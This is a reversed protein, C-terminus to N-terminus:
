KMAGTLQAIRAYAEKPDVEPSDAGCMPCEGGAFLEQRFHDQADHLKRSLDARPGVLAVTDTVNKWLRTKLDRLEALQTVRTKLAPVDVSYVRRGRLEREAAAAAAARAALGHLDALLALRGRVGTLDAKLLWRRGELGKASLTLASIKGRLTVLDNVNELRKKVGALDAALLWRRPRLAAAEAILARVQRRLGALDAYAALRANLGAFDFRTLWRRGSIAEFDARLQQIRAKLGVILGLDTQAREARQLAAEHAPLDAYDALRARAAAADKELEKLRKGQDLKDKSMLRLMTNVVHAGYLRGLLQAKAPKSEGILFVKAQGKADPDQRSFNLDLKVKGVSLPRANIVDFVGPIEDGFDKFWQVDDEVAGPPVIKATNKDGLRQRIITYGSATKLRVTTPLASDNPYSADWDNYFVWSLAREVVTKGASSPGVFATFADLELRVSKHSQFNITEIESIIQNM